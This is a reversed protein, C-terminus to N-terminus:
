ASQQQTWFKEDYWDMMKGSYKKQWGKIGGKLIAASMSAEGMENLYDQMWGACRPGRGNSSGTQSPDTETHAPLNLSTAVTGGEWDTRRVDVLLFSKASNPGASAHSELLQAVDEPELAHVPAKPEPFSSWWPPADQAQTVASM